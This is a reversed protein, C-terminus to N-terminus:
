RPWADLLAKHRARCDAAATERQAVTDLLDSLLVEGM